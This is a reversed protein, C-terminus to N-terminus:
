AVVHEEILANLKDAFENAHDESTCDFQSGFAHPGAVVVSWVKSGDSLIESGVYAKPKM